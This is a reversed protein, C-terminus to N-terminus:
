RKIQNESLKGNCCILALLAAANLNLNQMKVCTFVIKKSSFSFYERGFNGYLYNLNVKVAQKNTQKLSVLKQRDNM